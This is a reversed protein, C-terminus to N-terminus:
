KKVRTGAWPQQCLVCQTKGSSKFWQTLCLSHFCNSCTTCQLEPLKHSKIHLVSYCVPCPEVGDFEKDVNEKWLMLAEQLTGGQNNLMMTIQLSWLKWRKSSVGLTQSCDVEANRLPFITPLRIQVKLKIEDQVYIANIERTTVSGTVTMAGFANKVTALKLRELECRLIVPAIQTEVYNLFPDIFVKPCESEWWKRSLTPLVEVTRFLVLSALNVENVTQEIRLLSDMNGTSDKQNTRETGVGTHILTLNLIADAAFSKEIYSCLSPRYSSDKRVFADVFSLCCLWVLMRGIIIKDDVSDTYEEDSWSEMETMLTHPLVECSLEVDEQLEGKEEADLNATWEALRAATAEEPTADHLIDTSRAIADLLRFAYWRKAPVFLALVLGDVIDSCSAKLLGGDHTVMYSLIPPFHSLSRWAPEKGETENCNEDFDHGIVGLQQVNHEWKECFSEMIRMVAQVGVNPIVAGHKQSAHLAVDISRLALLTDYDTCHNSRFASIAGQYLGVIARNRLDGDKLADISAVLWFSVARTFASVGEGGSRQADHYDLLSATIKDADFTILQLDSHARPTTLGFGCSLSILMLEQVMDEERAGEPNSLYARLRGVAALVLQLMDFHLSGIGRESGVGCQSVVVNVLEALCSSWRLSAFSEKPILPAIIRAIREREFEDSVDEGDEDPSFVDSQKSRDMMLDCLQSVVAVGRCVSDMDQAEIFQKVQSVTAKLWGEAINRGLRKRGGLVSLLQACRDKRQAARTAGIEAAKAESTILILKVIFPVADTDGSSHLLELRESPDSMEHLIRMLCCFLFDHRSSSEWVSIDGLVVLELQTQTVKVATSPARKRLHLLRRAMDSWRQVHKSTDPNGSKASKDVLVARLFISSQEIMSPLHDPENLMLKEGLTDWVRGGQRWSQMWIRHIQGSTLPSPVSSLLLLTKLIPEPVPRPDAQDNTNALPCAQDVWATLVSQRVFSPYSKLGTCTQLFVELENDDSHEIDHSDHDSLSLLERTSMTDKVVQKAFEDLTDCEIQGVPIGSELLAKLGALLFRVRCKAAIVERLITEWHNTRLEVSPLSAVCIGFLQFDKQVLEETQKLESLSSTHVVMWRLVDNMLFKNWSQCEKEAEDGQDAVGKVRLTAIMLEYAELTPTDGSRNQFTSVVSYFKERLISSLYSSGSLPPKLDQIVIALAALGENKDHQMVCLRLNEQWFWDKVAYIACSPRNYCAKELQQLEVALGKGLQLHTNRVAAKPQESGLFTNLCEIWLEAIRKAQAVDGTEGENGNRVLFYTASESVTMVTALQDGLRIAQDRGIWVATLVEFQESPLMALLPLVSPGWQTASAGYCSKKFLKILHKAVTAANLSSEWASSGTHKPHAALYSLLAELLSAMNGPEKESALAQPLTQSFGNSNAADFIVAPAKQCCTSLLLYTRNRLSPKPSSLTKWLVSQTPQTKTKQSLGDDGEEVLGHQQIWVQLGSLATGVLREFLEELQDKQAESLDTGNVNENSSKTCSKLTSAFLDEQMKSARGYSLIREVYEWIGTQMDTLSYAACSTEPLHKNAVARVEAAPDGHCCYMMGLVQHNNHQALTSFAKPVRAAALALVALGEARVASASDYVIKSHYLFFFHALADVQQKKPISDNQFHEQLEQLAKTRTTTDKKLMRPFLLGLSEVKGMYVPSWRLEPLPKDAQTSDNSNTSDAFAGFGLFETNTGQTKNLRTKRKEKMKRNRSNNTYLQIPNTVPIPQWRSTALLFLLV